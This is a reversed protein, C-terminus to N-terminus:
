QWDDTTGNDFGVILTMSFTDTDVTGILLTVKMSDDGYVDLVTSRLGSAGPEFDTVDIAGDNAAVKAEFEAVYADITTRDDGAIEFLSTVTDVHALVEGPEDAFPFILDVSDIYGDSDDSSVPATANVQRFEGEITLSPFVVTYRSAGSDSVVGSTRGPELESPRTPSSLDWTVPDDDQLVACGGVLLATGVMALPWVSRRSVM